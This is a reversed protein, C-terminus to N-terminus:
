YESVAGSGGEYAENWGKDTGRWEDNYAGWGEARRGGEIDRGGEQDAGQERM